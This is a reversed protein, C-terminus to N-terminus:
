GAVPEQETIDETFRDSAWGQRTTTPETETTEESAQAAAAFPDYRGPPILSPHIGEAQVKRSFGPIVFRPM